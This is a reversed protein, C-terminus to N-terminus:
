VTSDNTVKGKTTYNGKTVYQKKRRSELYVSIVIAALSRIAWRLGERNHAPSATSTTLSSLKNPLHSPRIHLTGQYSERQVNTEEKLHRSPWGNEVPIVGDFRLCRSRLLFHHARSPVLARDRLEAM